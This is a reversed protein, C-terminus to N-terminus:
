SSPVGSHLVTTIIHRSGLAGPEMGRPVSCFSPFRVAAQQIPQLSTIHRVKTSCFSLFIIAWPALPCSHLPKSCDGIRKVLDHNDRLKMHERITVTVTTHRIEVTSQLNSSYSSIWCRVTLTLAWHRTRVLSDIYVNTGIGIIPLIQSM